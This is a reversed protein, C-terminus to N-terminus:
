DRGYIRYERKIAEELNDVWKKSYQDEQAQSSQVTLEKGEPVVHFLSIEITGLRDAGKQVWIFVRCPFQWRDDLILDDPETTVIYPVSHRTANLDDWSDFFENKDHIPIVYGAKHNEVETIEVDYEAYGDEDEEQEKLMIGFTGDNSFSEMEYHLQTKNLFTNLESKDKFYYMEPQPMDWFIKDM